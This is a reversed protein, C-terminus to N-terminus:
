EAGGESPSEAAESPPPDAQAATAAATPTVAMDLLEVVDYVKMERDAAEPVAGVSDEFMQMCFPCATAIIQAGTAAAEETRENNIRKGKSEEVWMHAGGAGCCFSQARARGMEVAQAGPLSGVIQRPSEYISNHRGLYCSDHYTIKEKLGDQPKLKGEQVLQAFLDAHHVVEFEGEFQPYENQFISFCHPCSTLIKKVGKAKLVEINQQAQLMFLYENGLRRAPDGSCGEEAGLV